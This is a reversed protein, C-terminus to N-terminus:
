QKKIFEVTRTVFQELANMQKYDHDAGDVPSLIFNKNLSCIRISQQFPIVTDKTGHIVLTPCKIQLLTNYDGYKLAELYIGYDQGTVPSVGESRWALMNDVSKQENEYGEYLCFAASKLVMFDPSCIGQCIANLAVAGGFSAAILGVKDNGIDVANFIDQFNKIGKSISLFAYEGESEGLSYFDFSVVKIKEELLRPILNKWTGSKSGSKGDGTLIFVTKGSDDVMSHQEMHLRYGDSIIERIISQDKGM